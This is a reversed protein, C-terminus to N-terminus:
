DRHIPTKLGADLAFRDAIPQQKLPFGATLLVQRMWDERQAGKQFEVLVGRAIHIAERLAVCHPEDGEVRREALEAFDDWWHDNHFHNLLTGPYIEGELLRTCDASNLHHGYCRCSRYLQRMLCCYEFLQRRGTGGVNPGTPHYFCFTFWQVDNLQAVVISDNPESRDRVFILRQPTVRRIYEYQETADRYDEPDIVFPGGKGELLWSESLGLGEAVTILDSISADSSGECIQELRRWDSLRLHRSLSQLTFLDDPGRGRNMMEIASVLRAGIQEAIKSTPPRVVNPYFARLVEPYRSIQLQLHGWGWVSISLTRGSARVEQEMVRAAEQIVADDPATTVLIFESLAPRFKKTKEVERRLEAETVERKYNANKGKCQVGVILGSGGGRRGYIDVGNQRQGARGNIQTQPDGLIHEFLLRSHREFTQWDRPPPISVSSFGTM